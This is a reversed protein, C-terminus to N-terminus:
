GDNKNRKLRFAEAFDRIPGLSGTMVLNMVAIRERLYCDASRNAAAELSPTAPNFRYLLDHSIKIDLFNDSALEELVDAATSDPIRLETALETPSWFRTPNRQLLM